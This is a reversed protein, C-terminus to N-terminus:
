MQNTYIDIILDNNLMEIIYNNVRYIQWRSIMIQDGDFPLDGFDDNRPNRVYM